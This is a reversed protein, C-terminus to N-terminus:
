NTNLLKEVAPVDPLAWDLAQLENPFCWRAESHDVLRVETVTARCLFCHLHIDIGELRTVYLGLEGEVEIALGLEEDIERIIATKADEGDEVKGGPFEWKLGSGGGALRKAALIKGEARIVAAVVYLSKRPICFSSNTPSDSDSM